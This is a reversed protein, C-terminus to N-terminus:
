VNMRPRNEEQLQQRQRKLIDDRLSKEQRGPELYKLATDLEGAEAFTMTVMMRDFWNLNTETM